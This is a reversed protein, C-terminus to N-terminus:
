TRTDVKKWTLRDWWPNLARETSSWLALFVGGVLMVVFMALAGVLVGVLFWM